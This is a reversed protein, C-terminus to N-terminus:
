RPSGEAGEAVHREIFEVLDLQMADQFATADAPTVARDTPLRDLWGAMMAVPERLVGRVLSSRSVGMRRSITDLQVSTDRDLVFTTRALNDTNM